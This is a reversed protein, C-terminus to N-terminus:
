LLDADAQGCEQFSSVGNTGSLFAYSADDCGTCFEANLLFKIKTYYINIPVNYVIVPGFQM